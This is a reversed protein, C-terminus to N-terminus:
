DLYKKLEIVLEHVKTGPDYNSPRVDDVNFEAMRRKAYKIATNVGDFSDVISEKNDKLEGKRLCIM